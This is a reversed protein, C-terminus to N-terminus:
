AGARRRHPRHGPVARRDASALLDLVDFLTPPATGRHDAVVDVVSRVVKRELPRLTRELQTAPWRLVAALAQVARDQTPRCDGDPGARRPVGAPQDPLRRRADLRVVTMGIREALPRYEGKPDIITLWRSAGYLCHQWVAWCKILSSKCFGPEGMVFVNPNTM